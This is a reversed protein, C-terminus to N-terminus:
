NSKKRLVFPVRCRLFPLHPCNIPLPPFSASEAGMVGADRTGETAGRAEGVKAATLSFLLVCVWMNSPSGTSTSKKSANLSAGREWLNPPFCQLGVRQLKSKQRQICLLWERPPTLGVEREGDHTEREGGKGTAGGKNKRQRGGLKVSVRSLSHSHPATVCVSVMWSSPRVDDLPCKVATPRRIMENKEKHRFPITSNRATATTM